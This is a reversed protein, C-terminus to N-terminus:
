LLLEFPAAAVRRDTLRAGAESGTLEVGCVMLIASVGEAGRQVLVGGDGVVLLSNEDEPDPIVAVACRERVVIEAKHPYVRRISVERIWPLGSIADAARHVPLRLLSIGLRLASTRVIEETALHTNGTVVIERLKFLGLWPSYVAIIAAAILVGGIVVARYVASRKLEGERM